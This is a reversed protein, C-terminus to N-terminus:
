FRAPFDKGMKGAMWAMAKGSGQRDLERFAAIINLCKRFDVFYADIGQFSGLSADLALSVSGKMAGGEDAYSRLMRRYTHVIVARGIMDATTPVTHTAANAAAGMLGFNFPHMFLGPADLVARVLLYELPKQRFRGEVKEWDANNPLAGLLARALTEPFDGGM